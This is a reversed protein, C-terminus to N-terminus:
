RRGVEAAAARPLLRALPPPVQADLRARGQALLDRRDARALPRPGVQLLLERRRPLRVQDRLGLRDRPRDRDRDADDSLQETDRTARQRSSTRSARTERKWSVGM